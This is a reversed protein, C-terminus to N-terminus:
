EGNALSEKKRGVVILNRNSGCKSCIIDALDLVSSYSCCCLKCIAVVYEGKLIRNLCSLKIGSLNAFERKGYGSRQFLVCIEHRLDDIVM